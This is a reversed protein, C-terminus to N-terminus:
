APSAIPPRRELRPVLGRLVHRHDGESQDVSGDLEQDPRHADNAESEVLGLARPAKEMV